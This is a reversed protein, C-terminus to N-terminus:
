NNILECSIIEVDEYDFSKSFEKYAEEETEAEVIQEDKVVSFWWNYTFKWKKMNEKELDVEKVELTDLFDLINNLTHVQETMLSNIYENRRRKIEAVVTAKDIYQKM